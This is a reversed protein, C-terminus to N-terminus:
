VHKGGGGSKGGRVPYGSKQGVRNMAKGLANEGKHNKNGGYDYVGRGAGVRSVSGFEGRPDYRAGTPTITTTHTYTHNDSPLLPL